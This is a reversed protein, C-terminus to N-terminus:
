GRIDEAKWAICRASLKVPKPFRGSKVGQQQAEPKRQLFIFGGHKFGLWRFAV